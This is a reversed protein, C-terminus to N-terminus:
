LQSTLVSRLESLTARTRIVSQGADQLAEADGLAQAAFLQGFSFLEGPIAVDHRPAPLLQVFMADKPGGKHLQGSSHLYRPGVGITVPMGMATALLKQVAVIDEVDTADDFIQVAVYIKGRAHELLKECAEEPSLLGQHTPTHHPVLIERTAQKSREVDPQDFPNVGLLWSMATTAVEWALIREGLDGTLSILEANQRVGVGDSFTLVPLVAKGEKGTSEAVLQEIWAEFSSSSPSHLSLGHADCVAAAALILAPNNSDDTALISAADKASAVIEAVPAGALVSPVIGFATLASYRGGVNPDALFLAYGREDAVTKLESGPDTIIVVRDSPEIHQDVLAREVAALHSRTEVTTGSKSSVVIVTNKLKAIASAVTEPHTTDLMRLSVGSEKCLMEPGLSSGGMGCLLVETIGQARLTKRLLTAKHIIPEAHQAADIWNLRHSAESQASAGWLSDDKAFLRSAYRAEVLRGVLPKVEEALREPLALSLKSASQTM